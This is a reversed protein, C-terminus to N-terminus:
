PSDLPLLKLGTEDAHKSYPWASFKQDPDAAEYKAVYKRRLEPTRLGHHYIFDRVHLAPLDLNPFHHLQKDPGWAFRPEKLMLPNVHFFTKVMNEYIGDCRWHKDDWVTRVKVRAQGYNGDKIAQCIELARARTLTPGLTEDCDLQMVYDCGLRMARTLLTMRNALDHWFPKDQHEIRLEESVNLNPMNRVSQYDHLVIVEDAIRKMDALAGSFLMSKEADYNLPLCACLKM